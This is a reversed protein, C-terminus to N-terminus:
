LLTYKDEELQGKVYRGLGGGGGTDVRKHEGRGEGGRWIRETGPSGLEDTADFSRQDVAESLIWGIGPHVGGVRGLQEGQLRLCRNRVTISTTVPLRFPPPPRVLLLRFWGRNDRRM